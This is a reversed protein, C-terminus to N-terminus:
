QCSVTTLVSADDFWFARGTARDAGVALQSSGLQQQRAFTGDGAGFLFNGKNGVTTILDLKGDHDFDAAAIMHDTFFNTPPASLLIKPAAFTGDGKGVLLEATATRVVSNKVNADHFTQGAIDVHGDGNFDGVTVSQYSFGITAKFTGDGNGLAVGQRDVLDLKGDGNFDAAFLDGDGGSFSSVIPPAFKGTGDGLFISVTPENVNLSAFDAKGDGNFDAIRIGDPGGFGDPHVALEEGFTFSGDGNGFLVAVTGFDYGKAIVLDPKGDGNLDGVDFEEAEDAAGFSVRRAPAYGGGAQGLLVTLAVDNTNGLIVDVLGDGNLDASKISEVQSAIKTFNIPACSVAAQTIAASTSAEDAPGAGCGTLGALAFAFSSGIISKRM